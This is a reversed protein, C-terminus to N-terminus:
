HVGSSVPSLFWESNGGNVTAVRGILGTSRSFRILGGLRSLASDAALNAETGCFPFADQPLVLLAVFFVDIMVTM